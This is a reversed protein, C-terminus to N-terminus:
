SIELVSIFVDASNADSCSVQIKDGEELVIKQVGGAVVLTSGNDIPTGPSITHIFNSASIDEVRVEITISNGGSNINSISMGFIVAKANGPCTYVDTFTTGATISNNTFNTAM